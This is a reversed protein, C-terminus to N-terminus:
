IKLSTSWLDLIQKESINLTEVLSLFESVRPEDKASEFRSLRTQSIGTAQAVEYQKLQLEARATRLLKALATRHADKSAAPNM